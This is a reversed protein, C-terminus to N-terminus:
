FSNRLLPYKAEIGDLSLTFETPHPAVGARQRLVTAPEDLLPAGPQGIFEALEDLVAGLDLEVPEVAARATHIAEPEALNPQLIDSQVPIAPMANPQGANRQAPEHTAAGQPSWGLAFPGAPSLTPVDGTALTKWIQVARKAEQINELFAIESHFRRWRGTEFMDTLHELRQEALVCWRAAIDRSAAASRVAEQRHTMFWGTMLFCPCKVCRVRILKSAVRVNQPFTKAQGAVVCRKDGYVTIARPKQVSEAHPSASM